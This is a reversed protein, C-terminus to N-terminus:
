GFSKVFQEAVRASRSGRALSFQLSKQLIDDSIEYSNHFKKLWYHRVIHLYQEQSLPHFSLRLGFRESLSIQEESDEEPHPSNDDAFKESILHRRNSTVCLLVNRPIGAISGDLVAKLARYSDDNASFSLDDIFFLFKDSMQSAVWLLFAVDQLHECSIQLFKLNINQALFHAVAARILTSKGTGRAGWLLIHNYSNGALFAQFNNLVATKHESIELLDDIDAKDMEVIPVIFTRGAFAMQAFNNASQFIKKLELLENQGNM